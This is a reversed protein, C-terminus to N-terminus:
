ARSRGAASGDCGCPRKVQCAPRAHHGSPSQLRAVSCWMRIGGARGVTLLRDPTGRRPSPRNVAMSSASVIRTCCSSPRMSTVTDPSMSMLVAPWNRSCRGGQRGTAAGEDDVEVLDGEDFGGPQTHEGQGGAPRSSVPTSQAHGAVPVLDPLQEADGAQVIVYREAAGNVFGEGGQWGCRAPCAVSEGGARSSIDRRKWGERRRPWKTPAVRYVTSNMVPLGGSGARARRRHTFNDWDAQVSARACASAETPWASATAARARGTRTRPRDRPHRDHGGGGRAAGPPRLRRVRMAWVFRTLGDEGWLKLVISRATFM